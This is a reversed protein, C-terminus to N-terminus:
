SIINTSMNFQGIKLIKKLAHNKIQLDIGINTDIIAIEYINYWILTSYNGLLHGIVMYKYVVRYEM